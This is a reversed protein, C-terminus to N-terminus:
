LEVRRNEGLDPEQRTLIGKVVQFAKAVAPKDTDWYEVTAVDVRLVAVAPDERGGEFYADAFPNWLQDIRAQSRDVSGAGSLSLYGKDDAVSVNVEPHRRIEDTKTSPDFTLFWLTGEFEEAELLALPRSHLAGGSGRSTVIATRGSRLIGRITELDDNTADSM